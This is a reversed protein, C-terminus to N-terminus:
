VDGLRDDSCRDLHMTLKAWPQKLASIANAESMFERELSEGNALLDTQWDFVFPNPQLRAIAYIEDNLLGHDDLELADLLKGADVFRLELRKALRQGISTKGAGMPGILILNPAPNM